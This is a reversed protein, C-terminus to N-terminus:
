YSVQFVISPVIRRFDMPTIHKEPFIEQIKRTVITAFTFPEVCILTITIFKGLCNGQRNVWLARNNRSPNM